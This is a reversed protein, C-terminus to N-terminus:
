PNVDEGRIRAKEAECRIVTFKKGSLDILEKKGKFFPCSNGSGFRWPGGRWPGDSECYNQLQWGNIPCQVAPLRIIELDMDTSGKIEEM